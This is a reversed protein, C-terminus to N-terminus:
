NPHNPDREESKEDELLVGREQTVSGDLELVAEEVIAEMATRIVPFDYCKEPFFYHCCRADEQDLLAGEDLGQKQEQYHQDENEQSENDRGIFAGLEISKLQM